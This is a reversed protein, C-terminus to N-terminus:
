GDGLCDDVVEDGEGGAFQFRTFSVVKRIQGTDLREGFGPMGGRVPKNTDGYSSGRAQAWRASGLSVWEVQSDCSAFTELVNSLDPGTDGTGDPGHCNVCGEEQYITQGAEIM